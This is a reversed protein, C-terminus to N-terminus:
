DGRKKKDEFKFINDVADGLDERGGKARREKAIQRRQLDLLFPIAKMYLFGVAMGGFHTAVSTNGPQFALLVNMAIVILVLARANIPMPIPFLFFEREPNIVAFAVLVGMVAGSAGTVSAGGWLMAPIFTALVGVAGCTLYFRLFARTGLAREVDKGFFFLWLMNLFLHLLGGHLFMYTFPQWLAGALFGAPWFALWRAFIGGPPAAFAGHAVRPGFFVDLLLQLGFVACNALILRQVTYTIRDGGGFRWQTSHYHRTM